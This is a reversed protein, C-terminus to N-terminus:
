TLIQGFFVDSREEQSIKANWVSDKEVVGDKAGKQAGNSGFSPRECLHYEMRWLTGSHM